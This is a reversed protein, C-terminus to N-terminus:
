VPSIDANQMLFLPQIEPIAIIIFIETSKAVPFIKISGDGSLEGEELYSDVFRDTEEESLYPKLDAVYGLKDVANRKTEGKHHVTDTVSIM